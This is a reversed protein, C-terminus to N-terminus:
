AALHTTLPSGSYCQDPCFTPSLGFCQGYPLVPPQGELMTLAYGPV